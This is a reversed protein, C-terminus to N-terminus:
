ATRAKRRLAPLRLCQQAQRHLRRRCRRVSPPIVAAVMPRLLGRALVRVVAELQVDPLRAIDQKTAARLEGVRQLEAAAHAGYALATRLGGGLLVRELMGFSLAPSVLLFLAFVVHAPQRSALLTAFLSPRMRQALHVWVVHQERMPPPVHGAEDPPVLTGCQFLPEDYARMCEVGLADAAAMASAADDCALLADAARLVSPRLALPPM